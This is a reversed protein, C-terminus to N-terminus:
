TNANHVGLVTEKFTKECKDMPTLKHKVDQWLQNPSLYSGEDKARKYQRKAFSVIYINM